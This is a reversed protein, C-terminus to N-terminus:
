EDGRMRMVIVDYHAQNRRLDGAERGTLWINIWVCIFSFMLAWRWQGKDPSNM